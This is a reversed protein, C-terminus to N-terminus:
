FSTARLRPHLREITEHMLNAFASDAAAQMDMAHDRNRIMHLYLERKAYSRILEEGEVMWENTDTTASLTAPRTVYSINVARAVSPIPYLRLQEQYYTYDTPDGTYGANSQVADIWAYDREILPYTSSSIDITISDISVLNAMDAFETATYFEQGSSTSFSGRTENFTFRYREYHKIATQIARAIHASLDSRGLETAIRDQMTGYTSM